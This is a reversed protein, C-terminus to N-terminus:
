GPKIATKARILEAGNESIKIYIQSVESVISKGRNMGEPPLNVDVVSGDKQM